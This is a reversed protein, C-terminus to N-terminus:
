DIESIRTSDTCRHPALARCLAPIPFHTVWNCVKPPEWPDSECGELMARAKLIDIESAERDWYRM